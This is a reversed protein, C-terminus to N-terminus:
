HHAAFDQTWYVASETRSNESFAIGIQTFRGDMINECHPPSALWGETVERANMAGAAINEGVIRHVGYGAREVRQAPSSGDTGKHDFADHLAMDKSHTLAARTLAADESLPPVPGFYKGGCQRGHARAANVGDLIDKAVATSERPAPLYQPAAFVMWLERGRWEAGFDKFRPDALTACYNAVMLKQLEREAAVGTIHVEASQAARYGSAELARKLGQGAALHRAAEALPTSFYLPRLSAGGCAKLREANIVSL